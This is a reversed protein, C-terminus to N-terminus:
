KLAELIKRRAEEFGLKYANWSGLELYPNEVGEVEARVISLISNVHCPCEPDHNRNDRLNTELVERLESM